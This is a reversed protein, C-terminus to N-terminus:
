RAFFSVLSRGAILQVGTLFLMLYIFRNFFVESVTRNLYVGLRTGLLAIPILIVTIGLNGLTLLGLFAYAFLKVTNMVFFLVANTGVFLAKSLRQPLLYILVPPAGVHALTSTFGATIGLIVGWAKPLTTSELRKLILARTLQFLVFAVAILGIGLKLVRENSNFSQFFLSAIVIGIISCPILLKLNPMDFSKRYSYVAFVDAFLLIPLLLAAAEAVPITLAVLPTTIAVIGGGFGGKGIGIFTAAIIAAVWFSPPYDPMAQLCVGDAIKITQKCHLLLGSCLLYMYVLGTM